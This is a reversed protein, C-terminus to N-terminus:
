EDHPLGRGHVPRGGAKAAIRSGSPGIALLVTAVGSVVTLVLLVAAISIGAHIMLAAAAGIAQLIGVAGTGVAARGSPALERGPLEENVTRPGPAMIQKLERDLEEPSPDPVCNARAEMLRHIRSGTM